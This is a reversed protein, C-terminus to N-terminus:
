QALEQKLQSLRAYERPIGKYKKYLEKIKEELIMRKIYEEGIAWSQEIENQENNAQELIDKNEIEQIPEDQLQDEIVALPLGQDDEDDPLIILNANFAETARREVDGMLFEVLVERTVEQDGLHYTYIGDYEERFNLFDNFAYCAADYGQEKYLDVLFDRLFAEYPPIADSTSSSIQEQTNSNM